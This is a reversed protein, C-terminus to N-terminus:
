ERIALGQARYERDRAGQKETLLWVSALGIWTMSFFCFIIKALNASIIGSNGISTNTPLSRCANPLGPAPSTIASSEPRGRKRRPHKARPNPWTGWGLEAQTPDAPGWGEPMMKRFAPGQAFEGVLEAQAPRKLALWSAFSSAFFVFDIRRFEVYTKSWLRKPILLDNWVDHDFKTRMIEGDPRIKESPGPAHNRRSIGAESAGSVEVANEIRTNM